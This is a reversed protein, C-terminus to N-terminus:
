LGFVAVSILFVKRRGLLDASRGGLLLFGGSGLLYGNVVWQLQATTMGLENGIAPLSVGILTIDLGDLFFALCLVTLLVWLRAPWRDTSDPKTSSSPSSETAESM